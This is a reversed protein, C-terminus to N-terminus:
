RRAARYASRRARSVQSLSRARARGRHRAHRAADTRRLPQGHRRCSKGRHTPRRARHSSGLVDGASPTLRYSALDIARSRAESVTRDSISGSAPTRTGLPSMGPAVGPGAPKHEAVVRATTGAWVRNVDSRAERRPRGATEKHASVARAAAPYQFRLDRILLGDPVGLPSRRTM